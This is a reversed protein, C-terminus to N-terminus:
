EENKRLKAWKEYNKNKQATDRVRLRAERSVVSNKLHNGTDRETIPAINDANRKQKIARGELHKEKANRIGIAFEGDNVYDIQRKIGTDLDILMPGDNLTNTLDLIYIPYNDEGIIFFFDFDSEVEQGMISLLERYTFEKIDSEPTNAMNFRSLITKINKKIKNLHNVKLIQQDYGFGLKGFNQMIMAKSFAEDIKGQIIDVVNKKLTESEFAECIISSYLKEFKNMKM